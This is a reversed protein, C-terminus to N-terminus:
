SLKASGNTIDNRPVTDESFPIMTRGCSIRTPRVGSIAIPLGAVAGGVVPTVLAVM